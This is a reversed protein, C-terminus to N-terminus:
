LDQLARVTEACQKIYKDRGTALVIQRVSRDNDAQDECVAIAPDGCGSASLSAVIIFSYLGFNKM